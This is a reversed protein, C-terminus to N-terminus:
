YTCCRDVFLWATLSPSIVDLLCAVSDISHTIRSPRMTCFIISMSTPGFSNTRGFYAFLSFITFKLRISIPLNGFLGPRGLINPSSMLAHIGVVSALSCVWSQRSLTISKTMGSPSESAVHFHLLKCYASRVYFPELVSM